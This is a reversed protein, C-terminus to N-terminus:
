IYYQIIYIYIYIYIHIYLVTNYIYIYIYIYIHIYLVTNYTYINIYLIPLQIHTFQTFHTFQTQTIPYPYFVYFMIKKSYLNTFFTYHLFMLRQDM